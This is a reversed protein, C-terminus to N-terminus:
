LDEHDKHVGMHEKKNNGLPKSLGFICIHMSSSLTKFICTHTSDLKFNESKKRKTKKGFFCIAFIITEKGELGRIM